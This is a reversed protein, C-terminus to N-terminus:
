CFAVTCGDPIPRRQARISHDPFFLRWVGSVVLLASLTKFFWGNWWLCSVALLLLLGGVFRVTTRDGMWRETQGPRFIHWFASILLFAAISDAFVSQMTM